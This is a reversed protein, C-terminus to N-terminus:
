TDAELLRLIWIGGLGSLEGGRTTHTHAEPLQSRSASCARTFAQVGPPRPEEPILDPLNPLPHPHPPTVRSSGALCAPPPRLPCPPTCASLDGAGVSSNEAVAVASWPEPTSVGPGAGVATVNGQCSGIILLFLDPRVVPGRTKGSTARLLPPTAKAGPKAFHPEGNSVESCVSNLSSSM